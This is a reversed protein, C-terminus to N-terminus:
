LKSRWIRRGLPATIPREDWLVQLLTGLLLSLLGITSAIKVFHEPEHLAPWPAARLTPLLMTAVAVGVSWCYAALIGAVLLLRRWLLEWPVQHLRGDVALYLGIFGALAFPVFWRPGAHAWVEVKNFVGVLLASGVACCAPARLVLAHTVLPGGAAAAVLVLALGGLGMAGLLDLGLNSITWKGITAAIVWGVSCLTVAVSVFLIGGIVLNSPVNRRALRSALRVNYRPLAVERLLRDNLAATRRMVVDESQGAGSWPEGKGVVFNAVADVSEIESHEEYAALLQMAAERAWWASHVADADNRTEEPGTMLAAAAKLREIRAQPTIYRLPPDAGCVVDWLALEEMPSLQDASGASFGSIACKVGATTIKDRAGAGKVAGSFADRLEAFKGGKGVLTLAGDKGVQLTIM